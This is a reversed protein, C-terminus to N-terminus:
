SFYFQKDRNDKQMAALLEHMQSYELELGEMVALIVNLRFQSLAFVEACKSTSDSVEPM